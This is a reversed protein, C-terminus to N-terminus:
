SDDLYAFSTSQEERFKKSYRPEDGKAATIANHYDGEGVMLEEGSGEDELAVKPPVWLGGDKSM